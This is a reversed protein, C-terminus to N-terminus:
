VRSFAIAWVFLAGRPVTEPAPMSVHVRCVYQMPIRHPVSYAPLQVGPRGNTTFPTVSPILRNASTGSDIIGLVGPGPLFDPHLNGPLVVAYRVDSGRTHLWGGDVDPPVELKYTCMWWPTRAAWSWQQQPEFYSGTWPRVFVSSGPRLTGVNYMEFDGFRVPLGGGGPILLTPPLEEAGVERTAILDPVQHLFSHPAWRYGERLLRPHRHFIIRPDFRGITDYFSAMREIPDEHALLPGPDLGLITAVCVPEDKFRSTQRSRLYKACSQMRATIDSRVTADAEFYRYFAELERACLLRVPSCLNSPDQHNFSQLEAHNMDYFSEAGDKLQFFLRRALQGEQLTWLRHHWPSLHIRVYKEVIDASRPLTLIFSDLVLVRDARRYIEAM